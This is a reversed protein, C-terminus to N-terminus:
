RSNFPQECPRTQHPDGDGADDPMNSVSNLGGLASLPAEDHSLDGPLDWYELSPSRSM